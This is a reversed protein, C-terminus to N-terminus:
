GRWIKDATIDKLAAAGCMTMTSRLEDAIKDMNDLASDRLDKFKGKFHDVKDEANRFTVEGSKRQVEAFEDGTTKLQTELNQLKLQTEEVERRYSRYESEGIEGKEFLENVKAQEDKLLTLRKKTEDVQETLIKQKQALLEVNSPDMKLLKNVQNLESQLSKSKKKSEDLAKGLKTTDGGIEVTLGKIKNNAM